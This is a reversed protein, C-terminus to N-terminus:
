LPTSHIFPLGRRTTNWPTCMIIPPSMPLGQAFCSALSDTSTKMPLFSGFSRKMAPSSSHRALHIKGPAQEQDSDQQERLRGSERVLDPVVGSRDDSVGIFDVARALSRPLADEAVEVARKARHEAREGAAAM